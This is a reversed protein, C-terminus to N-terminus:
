KAKGRIIYANRDYSNYGGIFVQNKIAFVAFGFFDLSSLEPFNRWTSGNYHYISNGWYGAAFINNLETGHLRWVATLPQFIDEWNGSGYSTFVQPGNVGFWLRRYNVWLGNGPFPLLGTAVTEMHYDRLVWGKGDYRFIFYETSDIPPRSDFRVGCALVEDSSIGYIDVIQANTGTDFVHFGSGDYRALLGNRFSFFLNQSSTGWVSVCDNSKIGSEVPLFQSGNWHLIKKDPPNGFHEGVIWIDNESFGIIDTPTMGLATLEEFARWIKGNWHWIRAEYGDSHGVMYVNDTDSGWIAKPLIQIVNPSSLTDIEWTFDHSTTDLNAYPDSYIIIGSFDKECSLYIFLIFAFPLLLNRLRFKNM